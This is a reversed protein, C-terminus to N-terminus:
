SSFTTRSGVARAYTQLLHPRDDPHIADLWASGLDQERGRGTFALWHTNVYSCQGELECMWVPLPLGDVLARLRQEGDRLAAEAATRATVAASAVVARRM